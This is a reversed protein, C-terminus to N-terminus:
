KEGAGSASPRRGQLLRLSPLNVQARALLDLLNLGLIQGKEADGIRAYAVKAVQPPGGTYVNDTGFLVRGAGVERVMLDVAGRHVSSTGTDLYLNPVRKAAAISARLGGVSGGSHGIIVPMRPHGSAVREAQFPHDLGRGEGWTHALVPIQREEALAWVPEYGPGDLPYAHFSPHVKIIGVDPCSLMRELERVMEDPYNPNVVAAGIFRSPWRDIAALVEDNGSRVDPGIALCSSICAAAIGLRDMVRALSEADTYRRPM